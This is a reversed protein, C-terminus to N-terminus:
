TQTEAAPFPPRAYFSHEFNDSFQYGVSTTLSKGSGIEDVHQDIRFGGANDSSTYYVIHLTGSVNVMDGAVCPNPRVDAPINLTVNVPGGAAASRAPAVAAAAAAFSIAAVATAIALSRRRRVHRTQIM